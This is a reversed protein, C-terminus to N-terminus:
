FLQLWVSVAAEPSVGETAWFWSASVGVIANLFCCLGQHVVHRAIPDVTLEGSRQEVDGKVNFGMKGKLRKGWSKTPHRCWHLVAEGEWVDAESTWARRLADSSTGVRGFLLFWGTWLPHTVCLQGASVFGRFSSLCAFPRVLFRTHHFSMGAPAATTVQCAASEGEPWNRASGLAQRPGYWSWHPRYLWFLVGGVRFDSENMWKKGCMFGLMAESLSWIPWKSDSLVEGLKRQVQRWSQVVGGTVHDGLAVEAQDLSKDGTQADSQVDM